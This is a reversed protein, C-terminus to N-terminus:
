GARVGQCNKQDIVRLLLQETLGISTELTFKDRVKRLAREAMRSRLDPRNALLKVGEAFAEAKEPEVLLGDAMHTIIEKPGGRNAAIVPVGQSMAEIVALGFGEHCVSPFLLVDYDAYLGMLAEWDKPGLFRLSEGVNLSRGLDKLKGGYEEPGAGGVDLMFQGREASNLVALARIAIDVGKEPVIRGVYLLANGSGSEPPGEAIYKSDIGNRIVTMQEERFGRQLYYAKLEESALILHSTDLERVNIGYLWRRGVRWFLNPDRELRMLLECLCVDGLNFVTPIGLRQLGQVTGIGFSDFQWVFVVRPEFAQAAARAKECNERYIRRRRLQRLVYAPRISQYGETPIRTLLRIVNSNEEVESLGESGTLIRVQHGRASLLRAAEAAQLAYGSVAPPYHQSIMLIRMNDRSPSENLM